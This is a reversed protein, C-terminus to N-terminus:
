RATRDRRRRGDYAEIDARRVAWGTPRRTGPLRGRRIAARVAEAGTGLLGAAEAPTLWPAVAASDARDRGNAGAVTAARNDSSGSDPSGAAADLVVAAVAPGCAGLLAPCEAALSPLALALRRCVAATALRPAVGDRQQKRLGSEVAAILAVLEGRPLEGLGTM